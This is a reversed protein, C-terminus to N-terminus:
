RGEGLREAHDVPRQQLELLQALLLLAGIIL